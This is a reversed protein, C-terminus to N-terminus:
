QQGFRARGEVFVSQLRIRQVPTLLGQSDTRYVTLEEARADQVLVNAEGSTNTSLISYGNGAAVMQATQANAISSLPMGSLNPAGSFLSTAQVLASAALIGATLCLAAELTVRRNLRSPGLVAPSPSQTQM